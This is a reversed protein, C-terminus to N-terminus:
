GGARFSISDLSLREKCDFENLVEYASVHGTAYILVAGPRIDTMSGPVDCVPAVTVTHAPRFQEPLVLAIDSSGTTRITGGLHVVGLQDRYAQAPRQNGVPFTEWGPNLELETVPIPDLESSRVYDSAPVDGLAAANAVSLGPARKKIQKKAQKKALKKVSKKSVASIVASPGAVTAGALAAVLALAILASRSRGISVIGKM